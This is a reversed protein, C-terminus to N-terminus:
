MPIISFGGNTGLKAFYLRVLNKSRRRGNSNISGTLHELLRVKAVM